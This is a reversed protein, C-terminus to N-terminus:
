IKSGPVLSGRATGSGWFGIFDEIETGGNGGDSVPTGTHAEVLGAEQHRHLRGRPGGLV